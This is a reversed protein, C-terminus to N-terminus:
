GPDSGPPSILSRAIGTLTRESEGSSMESLTKGDPNPCHFCSLWSTEAFLSPGALIPIIRCRRQSATHLLAPLEVDHIFDSALFDASVLLLAVRARALAATIEERWREGYELRRDSWVDILGARNLPKLHVLLRNLWPVDNDNHSYCVFVATSSSRGPGPTLEREARGSKASGLHYSAAIASGVPAAAGPEPLGPRGSGLLRRGPVMGLLLDRATQEDTGTLDVLTVGVLVDPVEPRGVLVPILQPRARLLAAELDAWGTASRLYGPSIVAIMVAAQNLAMGVRTALDCGDQLDAPQLAASYGAQSLEGAIWAAWGRDASSYSILFDTGM